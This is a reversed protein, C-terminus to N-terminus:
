KLDATNIRIKKVEAKLPDFDIKLFRGVVDM